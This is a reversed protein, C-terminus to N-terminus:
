HVLFKHTSHVGNTQVLLIYVGRILNVQLSAENNNTNITPINITQGAMNIIRFDAGDLNISATLQINGNNYSFRDITSIIEIGTGGGQEEFFSAVGDDMIANISEENLVETTLIMDDIMGHMAFQEALNKRAAIVLQGTNSETGAAASAAVVGNVYLYRMGADADKVNAVHYWTNGLVPDSGDNRLGSTFSGFVLAEEPPFAELHIRGPADGDVDQQHVITQNLTDNALNIWCALTFSNVPNFELGESLLPSFDFVGAQGFVGEAYTLDSNGPQATFSTESNFVANEFNDEFPLYFLVQNTDLTQGFTICAYMVSITILLNKRM